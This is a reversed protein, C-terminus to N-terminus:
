RGAKDDSSNGKATTFEQDRESTLQLNIMKQFIKSAQINPM